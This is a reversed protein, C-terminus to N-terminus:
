APALKDLWDGIDRRPYVRWKGPEAPPDGTDLVLWGTSSLEGLLGPLNAATVGRVGRNIDRPTFMETGREVRPVLFRIIKTLLVRNDGTGPIRPSKGNVSRQEHAPFSTGPAELSKEKAESLKEAEVQAVRRSEQLSWEVIRFGNAMDDVTVPFPQSTDLLTRGSVGVLVTGNSSATMPNRRYAMQQCIVRTMAHLVAVRLAIQQGPEGEAYTAHFEQAEADLTISPFPRGPARIGYTSLVAETVVSRWSWDAERFKENARNDRTTFSVPEPIVLCRSMLDQESDTKGTKPALQRTCLVATLFPSSVRAGSPCSSPAIFSKGDGTILVPLQSEGTFVSLLRDQRHLLPYVQERLPDLLVLVPAHDVQERAVDQQERAALFEAHAQAQERPNRTNSMRGEAAIVAKTSEFSARKRSARERTWVQQLRDDAETMVPEVLESFVQKGIDPTADL